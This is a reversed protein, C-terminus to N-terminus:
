LKMHLFHSGLSDHVHNTYRCPNSAFVADVDHINLQALLQPHMSRHPLSKSSFSDSSSPCFVFRCKTVLIRHKSIIKALVAFRNRYADFARPGNPPPKSLFKGCLIVVNPVTDETFSKFLRDLRTIVRHDDLYVESIIIITPDGARAELSTLTERTEEIKFSQLIDPYSQLTCTRARSEVPPMKLKSVRFIGDKLCGEAIVMCGECFIGGQTTAESLDLQVNDEPDELFFKGEELQSLMGFLHVVQDSSFGKLRKITCM